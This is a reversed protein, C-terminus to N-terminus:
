CDVRRWAGRCRAPASATVERIASAENVEEEGAGVSSIPLTASGSALLSSASAHPEAAGSATAAAPLAAAVVSAAPGNSGVLDERLLREIYVLSHSRAVDIPTMGASDRAWADARARLLLEATERAGTRSVIHLPTGGDSSAVGNVDARYDLLIVAEARLSLAVAIHLPRLGQQQPAEVNARQELLARLVVSRHPVPGNFRGLAVHLATMGCRARADLDARAQALVTVASVTEGERLPASVGHIAALHLPTMGDRRGGAGVEARYELLLKALSARGQLVALVLPTSEDELRARQVEARAELLVRAIDASGTAAAVHLAAEDVDTLSNPCASAGVLLSVIEASGGGAAAHMATRGGHNRHDVSGPNSGIATHELLIRCADVHGRVCALSLAADGNEKLAGIDARRELLLKLIASHGQWAAQHIPADGGMMRRNMEAEADILAKAVDAHGRFAAYHLPTSRNRSLAHVPHGRALLMSVLRAQGWWSGVHLLTDGQPSLEWQLREGVRPGLLQEVVGCEGERAARFLPGEPPQVAAPGSAAGVFNVFGGPQAPVVIPVVIPPQALAARADPDSAAWRMFIETLRSHQGVADVLAEVSLDRAAESPPAGSADHLAAILEERLPQNAQLAQSIWAGHPLGLPGQSAQMMALPLTISGVPTQVTVTQVGPSSSGVARGPRAQSQGEAQLRPVREQPEPEWPPLPPLGHKERWTIIQARLAHNPRLVADPLAHGTKPSTAHEELWKAIAAREYTHGDSTIVPREMLDQTICCRFEDPVQLEDRSESHALQQPLQQSRGGGVSCPRLHEARVKITGANGDPRFEWRGSQADWCALTGSVGNLEPRRALGLITARSGTTFLSGTHSPASPSSASPTCHHAGSASSSSAGAQADGSPASAAGAASAPAASGDEAIADERKGEPTPAAARVNVSSPDQPLRSLPARVEGVGPSPARVAAQANSAGSAGGRPGSPQSLEEYARRLKALRKRLKVRHGPLLQACTFLEELEDDSLERLLEFDDYGTRALETGCAALGQSDLWCALHPDLVVQEDEAASSKAVSGSETTAALDSRVVPAPAALAATEYVAAELFAAECAAEWSTFVNAFARVAGAAVGVVCLLLRALAGRTPSDSPLRVALFAASAGLAACAACLLLIQLANWGSM